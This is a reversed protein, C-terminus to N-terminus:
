LGGVFRGPNLIGLSDFEEKLRRMVKLAVEPIPGWVDIADKLALPAREIVLSGGEGHLAARLPAVLESAFAEPAIVGTLAVQLIGNGAEGVIAVSLGQRSASSEIERAWRAAGRIEGAIRLVLPADFAEGLKTWLAAPITIARGGSREGLAVLTAGQSKVAEPVTSVSVCLAATASPLGLGRLAGDNLWALRDPELTSALIASLLDGARERSDFTFLWSGTDAPAPHLRLTAEAILGLTGLSGALLKPVDYGTVSKVVKAGGWTVTGDAQVFRVGLLLDRATGYRFRLPGSANTALVGGISRSAGGHPDLALMQAHKGLAAALGDLTLGSQVTAVMDEPVYELVATLRTTDVVLDLRHPPNGLGMASASGRPAVALKETSCLALIRSVEDTSGPSVLWRPQRGDISAASLAAPDSVVQPRGVIEALAEEVAPASM